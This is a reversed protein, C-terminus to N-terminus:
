PAPAPPSCPTEGHPLILDQLTMGTLAIAGGREIRDLIEKLRREGSTLNKMRCGGGHSKLTHLVESVVITDPQRAPLWVPQEGASAVLYGADALFSTIGRTVRVPVDLDEALRETSWGPAGTQFTGAINQLVALTLLERLSHSMDPSRVERRFTRINQHAYVMEVGFLVIIWSTYIWIMLIPLISLTGYIANYRSVGVQFHIYGWQAVQWATGALIGGVLASRPRVRTNPIFMYLFVLAIWISLYPVLRFVTLILDGLFTTHVLWRVFSQSQLTSTFSMAAFLLLPGIVAVSLYDGFKRKLPRTEAIGWIANFAEEINGILTVATLALTVLGIAGMSAMKTHNVYTVIRDVVEQSGATVQELILPEIKNPVGLGKLVAFALAFFPVLSLITTYALSSAHLLCRDDRFDKVVLTVIQLYKLAYRRLGSHEEPELEWLTTTFFHIIGKGTPTAM